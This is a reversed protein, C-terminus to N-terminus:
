FDNFVKILKVFEWLIENGLGGIFENLYQEVVEVCWM